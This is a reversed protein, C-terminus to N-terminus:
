DQLGPTNCNEESEEFCKENLPSINNNQLHKTLDIKKLMSRSKIGTGHVGRIIMLGDFLLILLIISMFRHGNKFTGFQLYM